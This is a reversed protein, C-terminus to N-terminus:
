VCQFEERIRLFLPIRARNEYVNVNQVLREFSQLESGIKICMSIRMKDKQVNFNQGYKTVCQFKSRMTGFM